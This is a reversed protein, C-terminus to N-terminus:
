NDYLININSAIKVKKDGVEFDNDNIQNEYERKGKSVAFNCTTRSELHKKRDM